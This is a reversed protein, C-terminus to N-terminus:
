PANSKYPHDAPLNATLGWKHALYGDIKLKESNSVMNDFLIIEGLMGGFFRRSINTKQTGIRIVGNDQYVQTVPSATGEIDDLGNVSICVKNLNQTDFRAVCIFYDSSQVESSIVTGSNSLSEMIQIRPIRDGMTFLQISSNNNASIKSLITSESKIANDKAVIAFTGEYRFKLNNSTSVELRDNAGDFEITKKGNIFHNGISPRDSVYPTAANNSHGSKDIWNSVAGGNEVITNEDSSDLWLVLNGNVSPLWVSVGFNLIESGVSGFDNSVVVTYNGDHQTANADTINLTANTEGALDVGDKKWQYTLYKGEATVSISANTDAYVTQAQPQSTIEPKLYKLIQENLKDTTIAGDAMKSGTVSGDAYESQVIPTGVPADGDKRYLDYVGEVSANLDAAFVKKSFSSGNHGAIVYVNDKLVVADAAYKNEPFSGHNAWQKIVPDYLEISSLTSNGLGGGTYLNGEYIWSSPNLRAQLLPTETKWSNSVPDYSEVVNTKTGSKKGGIAWLRDNFWVASLNHRATPMQELAVWQESDVDLKLLQNSDGPSSGGIIYLVDDGNVASAYALPNPLSTGSSWNDSLPDFIEVTSHYASSSNRGGIAYLKSAFSAAAVGGRATSMSEITEWTDSDSSYREFTNYNINDTYNRGGILYIKGNLVEVGDYAGRAVSVPAKEEWVLEKPEGRQYLSYGAPADSGYPVALLSGVSPANYNNTTKEQNLKETVETSLRNMGITANIDAVVEESLRSLSIPANIQGKVEEALMGLNVAGNAIQASGATQATGASFAYPVSAFPRDPSLQQFGNVGDSFWVRLKADTHQAFVAPDIAGMGQQATNGLLISYLGGNVSVAVSAQPESGEVSTGDNSWYTTTGDANVLAFKFLGNGDFAEGNVAVQGAYNLVPPVAHVSIAVGFLLILIKHFLNMSQM